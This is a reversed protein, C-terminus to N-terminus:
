QEKDRRLLFLIKHTEKDGDKEHGYLSGLLPIKILHTEMERASTRVLRLVALALMQVDVLRHESTPGEHRTTIINLLDPMEVLSVSHYDDGAGIELIKLIKFDLMRVTTGRPELDLAFLDLEWVGLRHTRPETPQNQPTAEPTTADTESAPSPGNGSACGPAVWLAAAVLLVALPSMMRAGEERLASSERLPVDLWAGERM